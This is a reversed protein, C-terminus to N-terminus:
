PLVEQTFRTKPQAERYDEQPNQEQQDKLCHAAWCVAELRAPEIERGCLTCAGYTGADVRRLADEVDELTQSLITTEALAESTRQSASAENMSDRVAGQGTRREVKELAALGAWCESQKELLKLHFDLHTM